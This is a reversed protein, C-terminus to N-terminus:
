EEAASEKGTGDRAERNRQGDSMEGGLLESGREYYKRLTDRSGAFLIAALALLAVDAAAIQGSWTELTAMRAAYACVLAVLTNGFFQYQRYHSEVLLQFAHLNRQLRAFNWRPEKIGTAHHLRDLIAWRVVSVSLGAGVSVLTGYLFGGVTPADAASAGLWM